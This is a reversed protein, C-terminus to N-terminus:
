SLSWSRSSSRRKAVSCASSIHRRLKLIIELRLFETWTTMVLWNLLVMLSKVARVIMKFKGVVIALKYPIFTARGRSFFGNAKIMITLKIM